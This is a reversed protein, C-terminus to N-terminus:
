RTQLSRRWRQMTRETPLRGTPRLRRDRRGMNAEIRVVQRQLHWGESAEGTTLEVDVVVNARDDVATHQKYRPEMRYPKCSTTLTADPDTSSHKKTTTKPKQGPCGHRHGGNEPPPNDDPPDNKALVQEVHRTTLSESSVNARNLTADVRVTEGDIL